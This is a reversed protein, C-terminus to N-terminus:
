RVHMRAHRQTHMSAHVQTEWRAYLLICIGQVTPLLPSRSQVVNSCKCCFVCLIATDPSKRHEASSWVENWRRGSKRPCAPWYLPGAYNITVRFPWSMGRWKTSYVDKGMMLLCLSSWGQALSKKETQLNLLFFREIDILITVEQLCRWCLTVFLVATARFSHKFMLDGEDYIILKTILALATSILERHFDTSNIQVCFPFHLRESSFVLSIHHCCM